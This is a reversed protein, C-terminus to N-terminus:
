AARGGPGGSAETLIGTLHHLAQLQAKAARQRRLIAVEGFLAARLTWVHIPPLATAWPEGRARARVLRHLRHGLRRVIARTTAPDGRLYEPKIGLFPFRPDVAAEPLRRALHERRYRKALSREYRRRSRRGEAEARCLAQDLGDGM